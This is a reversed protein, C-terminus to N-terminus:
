KQRGPRSIIYTGGIQHPRIIIVYSPRFDASFFGRVQPTKLTKATMTVDFAIEGVRADPRRYSLETGSTDNERRNVRVPGHNSSEIGYRSYQERLTRRVDRDIYNGLAEERSLRATLRGANWLKIGEEYAEDARRQMLRLTELQLPSLQDKIRYSAVARDFRLGNLQNIQGQLTQPTGLSEFRFSPDIEKIESIIKNSWQHTLDATLERAPGTLDLINDAAAIITGGTSNELGPFVQQVTMPDFFARINSGRPARPGLQLAAFDLQAIKETPSAGTPIRSNPQEVSALPSNARRSPFKEASRDLRDGAQRRSIIVDRLSQPGGPAFTFRGNRPDHYPNFKFEASAAEKIHFRRGTRLYYSFASQRTGASRTM